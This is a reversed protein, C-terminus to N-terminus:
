LMMANKEHRMRKPHPTHWRSAPASKPMQSSFSLSFPYFVGYLQSTGVAQHAAKSLSALSEALLASPSLTTM